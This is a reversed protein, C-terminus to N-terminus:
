KARLTIETLRGGKLEVTVPQTQQNGNSPNPQGRFVYRGPPVDTFAIQNRDDINGTGGWSGVVSGGEPAVTVIYGEPKAKGAFDVTVRVRASKTMTLAVGDTPLKIRPGLGPRCYGFKYV